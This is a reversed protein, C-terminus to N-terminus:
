RGISLAALEVQFKSNSKESSSEPLRVVFAHAIRLSAIRADKRILRFPSWELAVDDLTLWRGKADSVEIRAARLSHPFKGALGTIAVQGGSGLGVLKEITNRGVSTDSLAYLLLLAALPIGILLGSFWAARVLWRHM